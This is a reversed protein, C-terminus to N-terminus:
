PAITVGVRLMQILWIAESRTLSGAWSPMMVPADRYLSPHGYLLTTLLRRNSKARLYAPQLPPASGGELQAGHCMVCFRKALYHLKGEPPRAAVSNATASLTASLVAAALLGACLLHMMAKM